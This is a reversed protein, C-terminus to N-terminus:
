RWQRRQLVKFDGKYKELENIFSESLGARQRSERDFSIGKARVATMKEPLLSNYYEWLDRDKVQRKLFQVGRAVHSIEDDYITQMIQASTEDEVEIFIDRYYAAFDLNAQEFTLAMLAYFEEKSKLNGTHRWFFDNLPLDGFELHLGKMRKIYMKLHKQEDFITELMVKESARDWEFRMLAWAFMEIALLEHNAFFHFAKAKVDDKHFQSKKPFKLQEDSFILNQSRGPVPSADKRPTEKEINLVERGLLKDDINPSNLLHFAYEQISLNM